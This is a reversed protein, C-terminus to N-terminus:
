QGLCFGLSKIQGRGGVEGIGLGSAPGLTVLIPEWGETGVGVLWRVPSQGQSLRGEWEVTGQAEGTCPRSGM